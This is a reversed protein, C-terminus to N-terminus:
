KNKIVCKGRKKLETEWNLEFDNLNFQLLIDLWSKILNSFVIQFRQDDQGRQLIVQFYEKPFKYENYFKIVDYIQHWQHTGIDTGGIITKIKRMVSSPFFNKEILLFVDEKTKEEKKTFNFNIM